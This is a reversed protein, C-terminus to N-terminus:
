MDQCTMQQYIFKREEKAKSKCAQMLLSVTLSLILKLCMVLRCAAQKDRFVPVHM